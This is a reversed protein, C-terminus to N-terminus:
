DRSAWGIADSQSRARLALNHAALSLLEETPFRAARVLAWRVNAAHGHYSAMADHYRSAVPYAWPADEIEIMHKTM